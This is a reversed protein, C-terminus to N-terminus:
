KGIKLWESESRGTAIIKGRGNLQLQNRNRVKIYCHPPIYLPQEVVMMAKKGLVIAQGLYACALSDDSRFTITGRRVNQVDSAPLPAAWIGRGYTCAILRNGVVDIELEGIISKAMGQGYPQWIPILANLNRAYVGLANSCFLTNSPAHYKLDWIPYAPLGNSMDTWTDGADSSQWIRNVGKSLDFYDDFYGFSAYVDRPTAGLELKFIKNDGVGCAKACTNCRNATIDQWTNGHDTSRWVTGAGQWLNAVYIYEDADGGVAITAAYNPLSPSSPLATWRNIGPTLVQMKRRMFYINGTSNSSSLTRYRIGEGTEDGAVGGVFPAIDNSTSMSALYNYQGLAFNPKTKSYAVDYGDGRIDVIWENKDPLYSMISNDQSGASIVGSFPSVSCGYFDTIPLFSGNLNRFTKGSNSSFSLGGDTGLLIHDSNGDKSHKTAIYTRIDAHPTNNSGFSYSYCSEYSNGADTSRGLVLGGFYQIESKFKNIHVVGYHEGDYVYGNTNIAFEEEVQLTNLNVVFREPTSPAEYTRTVFLMNPEADSAASMCLTFLDKPKKTKAVIASIDIAAPRNTSIDKICYLAPAYRKGNHVNTKTSYFLMDRPQNYWMCKIAQHDGAQYLMAKDNNSLTLLEFSKASNTSIYIKGNIAAYFINSKAGQVISYARNNQLDHSNEIQSAQWTEGGDNSYIVGCSYRDQTPHEGGNCVAIFRPQKSYDVFIDRVGLVPLEYSDTINQWHEGGDSTHWVGSAGIYIDTSDNTPHASIASIHGYNQNALKDKTNFPGLCQWQVQGFASIPLSILLCILFKLQV